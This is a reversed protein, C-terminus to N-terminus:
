LFPKLTFPSLELESNKYITITLSRHLMNTTLFTLEPTLFEQSKLVLIWGKGAPIGQLDCLMELM